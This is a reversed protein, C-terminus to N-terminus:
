DVSLSRFIVQNIQESSTLIIFVLALHCRQSFVRHTIQSLAKCVVLVALCQVASTHKSNSHRPFDTTSANPHVDALYVKPPPHKSKRGAHRAKTACQHVACLRQLTGQVAGTSAHHARKLTTAGICM